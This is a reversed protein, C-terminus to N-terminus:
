KKHLTPLTVKFTTGVNEESEVEIAGRHLVVCHRVIFMGVGIGRRADANSGRHFLEFISNKESDPIGIGFDKVTIALIERWYTLKLFVVENANSYKVANSLLNSVIHYLLTTDIDLAGPLSRSVQLVIVRGDNLDSIEDVINRCFRVVDAKLPQFTLQNNQVKGLLLVADMTRTMRVIARKISLVYSRLENSNLRDGCHEMLDAAGMVIALPTRFEHSIMNVFLGRAKSSEREKKLMEIIAKKPLSSDIEEKGDNTETIRTKSNNM